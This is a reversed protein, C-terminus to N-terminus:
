YTIVATASILEMLTETTAFTKQNAQRDGSYSASTMARSVHDKIAFLKEVKVCKQMANSSMKLVFNVKVMATNPCIVNELQNM